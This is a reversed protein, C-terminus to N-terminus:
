DQFINLEDKIINRCYDRFNNVGIFFERMMIVWLYQGTETLRFERMDSKLAGVTHFFLLEPFLKIYFELGYKQKIFDKSMRIGFLKILFDYKMQELKSFKKEAKLPLKDKSLLEIYQPVSFTNSLIRSNYYGFSGSGVGIYEDYNIIYEDIMSKTKNFCWATGSTYHNKLEKVIQFYLLKENEYSIKGFRKKIVEQTSASAMLPYFTVQDANLNKIIQCDKVILERDQTPFNFIMDINVTKFQGITNRLRDIIEESSGYKHFREMIKLLRDDFSQVGVSLRKVGVEKLIKINQPTLHNPNTECSIENISFLSKILSIVDALEEILITPTGGGIYSAAFNFGLNKYLNIERKLAEFYKEAIERKFRFRNFSCYPCLEECFPIHIYLLLNNSNKPLPTAINSNQNFTLNRRNYWNMYKTIFNEVMM